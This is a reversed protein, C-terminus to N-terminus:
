LTLKLTHPCNKTNEAQIPCLYLYLFIQVCVKNSFFKMDTSSMHLYSTGILAKSINM